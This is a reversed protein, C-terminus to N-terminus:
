EIRNQEIAMLTLITVEECYLGKQILILIRFKSKAWKLPSAENMTGSTPVKYNVFLSVTGISEKEIHNTGPSM